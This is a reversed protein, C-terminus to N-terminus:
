GRCHRRGRSVFSFEAEEFARDAVPDEAGVTPPGGAIAMDRRAIGFPGIVEPHGTVADWEVQHGHEVEYQDARRAVNDFCGTAEVGSDVPRAEVDVGSHVVSSGVDDTRAVRVRPVPSGERSASLEDPRDALLRTREEFAVHEEVVLFEVNLAGFTAFANRNREARM